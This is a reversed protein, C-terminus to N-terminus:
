AKFYEWFALVIGVMLAGLGGGTTSDWLRQRKRPLDGRLNALEVKVDSMDDKLGELSTDMKDISKEIYHLSTALDKEEM